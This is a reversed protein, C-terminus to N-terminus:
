LPAAVAYTNPTGSTVTWLEALQPIFSIEQGAATVTKNAKGIVWVSVSGVTAASGILGNAASYVWDGDTIAGLSIGVQTGPTAGFREIQVFDGAQFPNDRSIGLPFAAKTAAGSCLAATLLSATSGTGVMWVLFKGGGIYTNTIPLTQGADVQRSERGSYLAGALENALAISGRRRSLSRLVYPFKLSMKKM